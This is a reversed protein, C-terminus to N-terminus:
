HVFVCVHANSGYATSRIRPQTRARASLLRSKVSVKCSKTNDDSPQSAGAGSGSGSSEGADGGEGYMGGAFIPDPGQGSGEGSPSEMNFGLDSGTTPGTGPDPGDPDMRPGDPPPPPPKQPEKFYFIVRVSGAVINVIVVQDAEVGPVGKTIAQKFTYEFRFRAVPSSQIDDISKDLTAAMVKASKPTTSGRDEVAVKDEFKVLNGLEKSDKAFVEKQQQLTMGALTSSAASSSVTGPAPPPAPPPAPAADAKVPDKDIIFLGAMTGAIAGLVLIGVFGLGVKRYSRAKAVVVVTDAAHAFVPPRLTQLESGTAGGRLPTAVVMVPNADEM